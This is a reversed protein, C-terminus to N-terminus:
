DQLLMGLLMKAIGSRGKTGVVILDINQEEVYDLKTSVVSGKSVIFEELRFKMRIQKQRLKMLGNKEEEEALLVFERITLPPSEV